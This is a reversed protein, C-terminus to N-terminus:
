ARLWAKFIKEAFDRQGPEDASSRMEGPAQRFGGLGRATEEAHAVDDWCGAIYDGVLSPTIELHGSLALVKEGRFFGALYGAPSIGLPHCGAPLSFHERHWQFLSGEGVGGYAGPWDARPFCHWGIEAHPGLEVKAGLITALLPAGFCIGLVSRGSLLAAHTIGRVRELWPFSPVDHVSHPTGLVVLHTFAVPFEGEYARYCRV